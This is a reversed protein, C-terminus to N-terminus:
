SPADSGQQDRPSFTAQKRQIAIEIHQARQARAEQAKNDHWMHNFRSRWYPCWRDNALHDGKCNICKFEHPCPMGEETAKRPPQAKPNAQCCWATNHHNDTKHPSGCKACKWGQSRCKTTIHGWKWCNQCQSVGPHMNCVRIVAVDKDFNFSCNTLLKANTGNQSDWIDFWIIAMDSHPTARM